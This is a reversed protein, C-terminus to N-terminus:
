NVFDTPDILKIINMVTDQHLKGKTLQELSINERKCVEELTTVEEEFMEADYFEELATEDEESMPEDICDDFDEFDIPKVVTIQSDKAFGKSVFEDLPINNRKCFEEGSMTEPDGANKESFIDTLNLLVDAPEEGPVIKDFTPKYGNDISELGPEGIPERREYIKYDVYRKIGEPTQTLLKMVTPYTESIDRDRMARLKCVIAMWKKNDNRGILEYTVEVKIPKVVKQKHKKM